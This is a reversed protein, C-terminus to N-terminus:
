LTSIGIIINEINPFEREFVENIKEANEPDRQLIPTEPFFKNMTLNVLREKTWHEINYQKIFPEITLHVIEHALTKSASNSRNQNINIQIDSPWGYSGVTGYKTLCVYYKEQLPQGLNKLNEFFKEEILDWDNKIKAVENAYFKEDFEASVAELVDQDNIKEDKELKKQLLDPYKPKYGQEKYWASRKLTKIVRACEDQVSYDFIVENKM